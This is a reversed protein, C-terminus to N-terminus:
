VITDSSVNYKLIFSASAKSNSLQVQVYVGRRHSTLYYLGFLIGMGFFTSSTDMM